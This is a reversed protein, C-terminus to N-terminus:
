IGSVTNNFSHRLVFYTNSMLYYTYTYPAFAFLTTCIYYMTSRVEFYMTQVTFWSIYSIAYRVCVVCVCRTFVCTGIIEFIDRQAGRAGTASIIQGKDEECQRDCFIDDM